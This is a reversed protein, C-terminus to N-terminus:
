NASEAWQLAAKRDAFARMAVLTRQHFTYVDALDVETWAPKDKMRFKAHVFVVIRNGRVTFQVPESAGETWGARSQTLYRAVESRGHYTGGGPFEAPETWEVNPDFQAVASPIDNRNFAAYASRLLAIARQQENRSRSKGPGRHCGSLLSVAAFAVVAM